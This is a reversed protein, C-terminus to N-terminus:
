LKNCIEINLKVFDQWSYIDALFAKYYGEVQCVLPRNEYINCLNSNENFYRCIGDGRDLYITEPSMNVRKCCKGCSTCPFPLNINTM